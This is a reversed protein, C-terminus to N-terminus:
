MTSDRRRKELDLRYNTLAKLSLTPKMANLVRIRDVDLICLEESDRIFIQCTEIRNRM